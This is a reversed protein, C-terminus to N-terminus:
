LSQAKAAVETKTLQCNILYPFNSDKDSSCKSSNVFCGIVVLLPHLPPDINIAMYQVAFFPIVLESKSGYEFESEPEHGEFKVVSIKFLDQM